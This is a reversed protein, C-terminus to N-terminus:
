VGKDKGCLGLAVGVLAAILVASVVVLILIGAAVRYGLRHRTQDAKPRPGAAPESIAPRAPERAAAAEDPGSPGPTPGAETPM